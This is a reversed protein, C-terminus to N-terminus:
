RRSGQEQQPRSQAGADESADPMETDGVDDAEVVEFEDDEDEEDDEEDDDEVEDDDEDNDESMVSQDFHCRREGGLVNCNEEDKYDGRYTSCVRLKGQKTGYIFGGGCIPSFLAINVDDLESEVHSLLKMDDWRYIRTVRHVPFESERNALCNCM